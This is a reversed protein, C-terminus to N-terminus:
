PTEMRQTVALHCRQLNTFSENHVQRVGYFPDRPHEQKPLFERVCPMRLLVIRVYQLPAVRQYGRFSLRTEGDSSTAM